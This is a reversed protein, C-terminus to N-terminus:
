KEEGPPKLAPSLVLLLVATVPLVILAWRLAVTDAVLGILAPGVFFGVRMLWTVFTLGNGDKLGPLEDAAHMTNPIVTAVGWGAAAFGLITTAPSPFVVAVTMGVLVAAAGQLLAAHPGIRGTLADGTFRGILQSGQLAVFGMGVVFPAVTFQDELYVASWSGASEEILGAAAGLLGLATLRPLWRRPIGRGPAHDHETQPQGDNGPLALTCSYLALASFLACALLGQLGLPLRVQAALSGLAGGTVAGVSWWGHLGNLITKGYGKQVRLGHANMSIDALADTAALGLLGAAFVAWHAAHTLANVLSLGALTAALWVLKSSFRRMLAATFLGAVLGGLPGIGAVLGWALDGLGLAQKIEPFRPILSTWGVGNIFFMATVAVRARRYQATPM